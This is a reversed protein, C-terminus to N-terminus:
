ASIEYFKAYLCPVKIKGGITSEYSQLGMNTGYVNIIDDELLRSKKWESESVFVLYIGDYMGYGDEDVTAVRLTAGGDEDDMVQVVRGYIHQKTLSHGESRAVENYEIDSYDEPNNVDKESSSVESEPTSSEEDEELNSIESSSSESSESDYDEEAIEKDSSSSYEKGETAPKSSQNREISTQVADGWGGPGVISGVMMILTAYCVPKLFKWKVQKKYNVAVIVLVVPTVFLALAASWNGCIYAIFFWITGVLMKVWTRKLLKSM